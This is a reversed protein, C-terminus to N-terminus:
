WRWYLYEIPVRDAIDLAKETWDRFCKAADEVTGFRNEPEMQRYKGKHAALEAEARNFRPLMEMVRYWKGQEFDFGMSECFIERLNYTPTDLDPYAYHVVENNPLIVGYECDYSM